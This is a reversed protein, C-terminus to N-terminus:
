KTSDVSATATQELMVAYGQGFDNLVLLKVSSGDKYWKIQQDFPGQPSEIKSSMVLTDGVFTGKYEPRDAFNNYMSLVYQNNQSDYGLVGFGKYTGMAPNQEETSFLVFMSDLGWHAKMMGTGNASNDGMTMKSQTSFHGVLFSLKALEPGFSPKTMQAFTQGFLVVLTGAVLLVIRKM